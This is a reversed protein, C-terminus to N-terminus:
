DSASNQKLLNRKKKSVYHLETVDGVSLKVLDLVKRNAEDINDWSKKIYIDTVRMSEDVHNLATHVTYKDVGAENSAITAWTHRAAYFELDDVGIDEGIKKLGKNIAASFSDVSSYLKYFKFVREGTPDKYKEILPLVEPEVKVSIEAKDSRRNKTKTRQYTIRGNKYCDSKCNYLDVANMGILYFSLLFVDKALNYRNVGPQMILSYPLESLKRLLDKSIARKRTFPVKPIEVKKFPSYPIRIIGADEDNFEKKARNHIARLQSIYLSKAREGNGRKPRVPQEGIWKIWDSLFKVTIEKISICERGVFRVLSNIAIKYAQANGKHGTDILLKIYQRAYAVIDLDFNEEKDSTVLEAVQEVTMAKLREGVRDCISRYKKIMDDTADIYRQNKLKFTTRTLDDKTVYYTTPIYKKRKNHIVRIKINYTGDARKQHAYVEAKFTAMNKTSSYYFKQVCIYDKKAEFATIFFGM